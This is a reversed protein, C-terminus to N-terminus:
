QKVALWGNRACEVAIDQHDQSFEATPSSLRVTLVHERDDLLAVQADNPLSDPLPGVADNILFVPQRALKAAFRLIKDHSAGIIPYFVSPAHHAMIKGKGGLM